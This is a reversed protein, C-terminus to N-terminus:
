ITFYISAVVVLTKTFLADSNNYKKDLFGGIWSFLYIVIGMQIPINILQLWKNPKKPQPMIRRKVYYM